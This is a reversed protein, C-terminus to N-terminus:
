SFLVRFLSRFLDLVGQISLDVLYVAIGALFTSIVVVKTSFILEEKKTWSIKRLEAKWSDLHAVQGRKKSQIWSPAMLNTKSDM